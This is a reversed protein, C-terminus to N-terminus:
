RSLVAAIGWEERDRSFEEDPCAWLGEGVAMSARRSAPLVAADHGEEPAPSEYTSASARQGVLGPPPAPGKGRGIPRHHSPQLLSLACSDATLLFLAAFFVAVALSLRQQWEM